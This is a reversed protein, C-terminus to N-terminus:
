PFSLLLERPAQERRRLLGRQRQADGGDATEEAGEGGREAPLVGERGREAHLHDGGHQEPRERPSKAVSRGAVGGGSGMVPRALDARDISRSPSRGAHAAGHRRVARVLGVWYLDGGMILITMVRFRRLPM